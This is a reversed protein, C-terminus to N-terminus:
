LRIATNDKIKDSISYYKRKRNHTICLKVPCLDDKTKKAPAKQFYIRATAQM